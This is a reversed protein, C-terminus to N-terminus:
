LLICDELQLAGRRMGAVSHKLLLIYVIVSAAASLSFSAAALVATGPQIRGGVKCLM